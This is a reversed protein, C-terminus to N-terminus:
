VDFVVVQKTTTEPSNQGQLFYLLQEKQQVSVNKEMDPAKAIKFLAGVLDLAQISLIYEDEEQKRAEILAEQKRAEILAEEKRTEILAEEKGNSNPNTETV